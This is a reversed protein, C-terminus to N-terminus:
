RLEFAQHLMSQFLQEAQRESELQRKMLNKFRDMYKVFEKQKEVPPYIMRIQSLGSSNITFQGATTTINRLTEKRGFPSNLVFAAFAPNIAKEDLRVRIIHDSFVIPENQAKFVSSNGVLNPNGNVRVLILDNPYLNYKEKEDIIMRRPNSYDIEGMSIDRIRLVITGSTDFDKRPSFGNQTDLIVRGFRDIDVSASEPGGFIELFVSQLYGDSLQRAYRRLRRIQDAKKLIAAIKQQEPLPPLFLKLALLDEKRVAAQNVWQTSLNKFVQKKWQLNFWFALFQPDVRELDIRIRLFHNSFVVQENFGTFISTKGVLEPSNTSNFVIDNNKLKFKNIQNPTAPVRVYSSWNFNGDTKVNNMRLQVVGDKTRDGSAFGSQVDTVIEEITTVNLNDIM